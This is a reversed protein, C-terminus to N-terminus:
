SDWLSATTESRINSPYLQRDTFMNCGAVEHLQHDKKRAKSMLMKNIFYSSFRQYAKLKPNNPEGLIRQRILFITMMRSLEKILSDYNIKKKRKILNSIIELRLYREYRSRVLNTLKDKDCKLNIFNSYADVAEEEKHLITCMDGISKYYRSCCPYLKISQTLIEKAKPYDKMALYLNALEANLDKNTTDIQYASEFCELAKEYNRILQFCNGLGVLADHNNNNMKIAFTYYRMAMFVNGQEYEIQGLGVYAPDFHRDIQLAQKYKGAAKGYNRREFSLNGLNTHSLPSNTNSSVFMKSNKENGAPNGIKLRHPSDSHKPPAYGNDIRSYRKSLHNPTNSKRSNNENRFRADFIGAKGFFDRIINILDHLIDAYKIKKVFKRRLYAFCYTMMAILIIGIAAIPITYSTYLDL